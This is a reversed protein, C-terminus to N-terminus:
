RLALLAADHESGLRVLEWGDERVPVGHDGRLREAYRPAFSFWWEGRAGARSPRSGLARELWGLAVTGATFRANFEVLSRLEEKGDQGRYTFGDIGCPGHFGASAVRAMLQRCDTLFRTEMPHGSAISPPGEERWEYVGRNGLYIGNEGLVQRTAGLFVIERGVTVWFQASLDEVREVWPELLAGGRQALRPLARLGADDLQTGSGPVRGRGSTGFRPKLVFRRRLAEPWAALVARIQDQVDSRGLVDPDFVHVHSTFASPAVESAVRACFAKDHLKSVVEPRAAGLGLVLEVSRGSASADSYWPILGDLDALYKLVVSRGSTPAIRAGSGASSSISIGPPLMSGPPFTRGPLEVDTDSPFLGRWLAALRLLEPVARKADRKEEAGFNAYLLARRGPVSGCTM